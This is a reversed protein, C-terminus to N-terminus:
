PQNKRWLILAETFLAPELMQLAEEQHLDRLLQEAEDSSHNAIMFLMEEQELMDDSTLIASKLADLVGEADQRVLAYWATHRVPTLGDQTFKLLVDHLAESPEMSCLAHMARTRLSLQDPEGSTEELLEQLFSLAQEPHQSLFTAAHHGHVETELLWRWLEPDLDKLTVGHLSEVIAYIVHDPEFSVKGQHYQKCEGLLAQLQAPVRDHEDIEGLIMAYGQHAMMLHLLAQQAEEDELSAALPGLSSYRPLTSYKEMLWSVSEEPQAFLPHEDLYDSEFFEDERAFWRPIASFFGPVSTLQTVIELDGLSSTSWFIAQALWHSSEKLASKGDVILTAAHQVLQDCLDQAPYVELLTDHLCQFMLPEEDDGLTLFRELLADQDEDRELEVGQIRAMLAQIEGLEQDPEGTWTKVWEPDRSAHERYNRIALKLEDLLGNVVHISSM